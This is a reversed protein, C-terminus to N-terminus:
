LCTVLMLKGPSRGARVGGPSSNLASSTWFPPCFHRTWANPSLAWQPALLPGPPAALLGQESHRAKISQRNIGLDVHPETCAERSGVAKPVPPDHPFPFPKTIPSLEQSPCLVSKSYPGSKATASPPTNLVCAYRM